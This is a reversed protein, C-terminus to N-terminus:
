SSPQAPASGALLAYGVACSWVYMVVAVVLWTPLHWSAPVLNRAIAFGVPLSPPILLTLFLAAPWARDGLNDLSAVGLLGLVPQICALALAGPLGMLPICGLTMTALAIGALALYSM